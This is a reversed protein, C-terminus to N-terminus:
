MTSSSAPSSNTRRRREERVCRRVVDSATIGERNAIMVIWAIDDPGFTGYIRNSKLPKILM